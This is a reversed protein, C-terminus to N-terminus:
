RRDCREYLEYLGRDFLGQGWSGVMCFDRQLVQNPEDSGFDLAANPEVWDDRISSLIVLDSSELDDALGSDSRNAVGPDMEIYRTGPRTQPLLYYLFAESYPTKRLDGTGVFLKDGPRAIGDVVPLMANVADAADKRGYYFSRGENQMVYSERHKGFTQAVADAYTRFTHHPVLLLLLVVPALAAFTLRRKTSWAPRVQRVLEAIAAPLLGFPVASVWALHTSDPRQLAQPLLGLSFVGMVLLARAAVTPPSRRAVRWGVLVMTLMAAVLLLLWLTLQGPSPPSPFPWPPENLVGAKQLFGDFHSWSPPLPLHRGSRLQFVPQIVMGYFADGPGAMVIHILYPSVGIGLGGLLRKRDARALVPWLVAYGLGVAVVLDPRYLLAFGGLIGALLYRGRTAAVMAWLGLAVGGVWALATLGIPPIIIIAAIVAGGVALRRGFPRVMAYVAAVLALQQLYGAVRETWLTTSFVKFLGALVWLSGPGYLHLFDRNPIAGRLVEEPFVLMFGEEMPPGPARLLGRLPLLVVVAVIGVPLWRRLASRRTETEHESRASVEVAASM